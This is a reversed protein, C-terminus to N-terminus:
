RIRLRERAGAPIQPAPQPAQGEEGADGSEVRARWTFYTVGAGVVLGALGTFLSFWGFKKKKKAM